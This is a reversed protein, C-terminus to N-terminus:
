VSLKDQIAADSEYAHQLQKTITGPKGDGIAKDDVRVIPTVESTSSSLFIEDANSIDELQFADEILEINADKLFREVAMRVCGYLINNTTPHTYVKGNKVLYVNSSSCETVKGDRHLIAEYCGQEKATQKALVNPLLNLSKIYCNEWRIDPQTITSVGHQLAEKNRPMDQIYAYMNPEVSQPFIHDRPASGRTIQMYVKGDTTMENKTILQLLLEKMEKKSQPIEIKIAEASRYLRDVHEEFLYYKGEYVRIVEYIGDGFQLGREEFPYNLSDKDRFESQTLIIPYVSM